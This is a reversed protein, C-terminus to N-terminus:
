GKIIREVEFAGMPQAHLQWFQEALKQPDFATGEQIMGCITVTAAHIGTGGLEQALSLLLSRQAAKGVSLSAGSAFPSLASGGGTLLITGRGKAKMSPLVAQIAALFGAAMARFETVLEEPDLQSPTAERFISANYILVDPSAAGLAKKLAAPDGADVAHGHADFGESKLQDVLGSLADARRALLGLRHGERGFRRALAMGMGPGMGVIATLPATADNM